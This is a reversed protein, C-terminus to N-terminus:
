LSSRIMTEVQKRLGAPRISETRIKKADLFRAFRILGRALAEAFEPDKVPADDEHWFGKIELTMTTRDLKPDLRAVLDDGYLIPLVYYGWRRKHAPVYVEWVYDFDFLKKARGRASVIDLSSLFTVEELTTTEKSKWGKPMKGMGLSELEHIDESLALYTEPEGEIQVQVFMGSEKWGELLSMMEAKSYDRRLYYNLEVRMNAERKLGVFSVAKRAFFEEAEKENAVYDFEKPAINERFDYVRSFGNRHHMMLEGSLWMDFLALSTDKSGRYNWLGVKNGDLDRNGLPGRARLEARVQEFLQEHSLVFGEIRKDRSRKEMHVRWYPLEEMPYMALWGGYDFFQRDKYAVEYLYEPKYDLVRSHLVLDQSRATINLPDLQVAECERIAQATGKKGKWRRGPWLGQKGLVFRRATQQSIIIPTM